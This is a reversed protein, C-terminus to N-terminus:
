TPPTNRPKKGFFVCASAVARASSSALAHKRMRMAARSTPPRAWSIPAAMPANNRAHARITAPTPPPRTPVNSGVAMQCRPASTRTPASNRNGGPHSTKSNRSVRRRRLRLSRREARRCLRACGWIRIVLRRGFRVPLRYRRPVLSRRLQFARSSEASQCAGAHPIDCRSAPHLLTRHRRRTNGVGGPTPPPDDDGGNQHLKSTLDAAKYAAIGGTVCLVVTKGAFRM